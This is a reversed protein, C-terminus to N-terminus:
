TTCSSSTSGIAQRCILFEVSRMAFALCQQRCKACHGHTGPSDTRFRERRRLKPVDLKLKPDIGLYNRAGYILFGIGYLTHGCGLDLVDKARIYDRLYYGWEAHNHDAALGILGPHFNRSAGVRYGRASFTDRLSRFWARIHDAV